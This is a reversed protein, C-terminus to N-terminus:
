PQLVHVLFSHQVAVQLRLVDKQQAVPPQHQSVEPDGLHELAGHVKGARANPRRVVHARFDEFVLRVVVLGVDPGEAAHKVLHGGEVVCEIGLAELLLSAIRM